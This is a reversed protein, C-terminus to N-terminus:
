DGAPEANDAGRQSVDEVKGRADVLPHLRGATVAHVAVHGTALSKDPQDKGEDPGRLSGIDIEAQVGALDDIGAEAIDFGDGHGASDPFDAAGVIVIYDDAAVRIFVEDRPLALVRDVAAAEVPQAIIPGSHIEHGGIELLAGHCPGPEAAGEGVGDAIDFEQAARAVIVNEEPIGPVVPEFAATHDVAKDDPGTGGHDLIEVKARIQYQGIKDRKTSQAILIEHIRQPIRLRFRTPCASDEVRGLAHDELPQRRLLDRRNRVRQIQIHRNERRWGWGRRGPSKAVRMPQCEVPKAIIEVRHSFVHQQATLGAVCHATELDPRPHRRGGVILPRVEVVHRDVRRDGHARGIAIRHHDVTGIGRRERDVAGRHVEGVPVNM